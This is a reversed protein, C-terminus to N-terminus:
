QAAASVLTKLNGKAQYGVIRKVVRGDKFVLFAPLASLGYERATAPSTTVDLKGVKIQGSYEAALDDIVPEM